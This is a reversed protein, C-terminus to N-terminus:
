RTSEKDPPAAEPGPRAAGPEPPLLALQGCAAQAGAGRSWRISTPVGARLMRDRFTLIRGKSPPQYDLWGEVANFPILNIKVPMGHVLRCLRREDAEADNVGALLVYEFTFRDGSREAYLRCAQLLRAIPYRRNVPMLRSRL